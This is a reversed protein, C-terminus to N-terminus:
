WIPVDPNFLLKPIRPSSVLAAHQSFGTQRHIQIRHSCTILAITIAIHVNYFIQISDESDFSMDKHRFHNGAMLNGRMFGERVRQGSEVAYFDRGLLDEWTLLLQCEVM